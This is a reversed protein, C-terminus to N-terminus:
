AVPHAECVLLLDPTVVLDLPVDFPEIAGRVALDDVLQCRRCLGVSMGPFRALFRDYYGGGAGLRRCHRDFALGPVLALATATLETDDVAPASAVPEEIGCFGPAVEGFSAIRAWAMRGPAVCRPVAVEKGEGWADRILRRTEVESGRSVYALVLEAHQWATRSRVRARIAEDEAARDAAAQAARAARMARRVEAKSM